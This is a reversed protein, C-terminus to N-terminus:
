KARNRIGGSKHDVGGDKEPPSVPKEKFSKTEKKGKGKLADGKIKEDQTGRPNQYKEWKNGKGLGSMPQKGLGPPKETFKGETVEEEGGEDEVEEDGGEDDSGEDDSEVDEDEVEEDGGEDEEDDCEEGLMIERTKATIYNHLHEAADENNNKILAELMAELSKKRNSM